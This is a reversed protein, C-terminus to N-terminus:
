AVTFKKDAYTVTKSGNNYTFGTVATGTATIASISSSSINMGSLENFKSVGATTLTIGTFPSSTNTAKSFYKTADTAGSGVFPTEGDGYSTSALAQIGVLVTHGESIVARKNAEDIYGTLAPIAIAALIALIVLVVIVEILTFGKKNNKKLQQKLILKM